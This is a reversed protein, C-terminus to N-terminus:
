SLTLDRVHYVGNLHLVVLQSELRVELSWIGHSIAYRLLEIVGSYEVINNLSPRLCVGGSSLVQGTPTYIVSAASASNQIHLSAGDVFGVYVSSKTSM